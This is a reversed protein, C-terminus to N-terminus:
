SAALKAAKTRVLAQNLQPLPNFNAAKTCAEKTKAADGKGQYALCIRYLDYPNQLNAQQLEALAKDYNKEELAILGNLSHAQRAQAPNNKALAGKEFEAAESKATTLDKKGVAVRALNFHHFLKANDKIQQSLTSEETMKLLREFLGKAEDYKGMELLINGKFQLDGTMAPVDSTKEGLAYQKDMGALAKDWQGSDVDVVTQNFLATRTEADSRAKSAIQQIEAAADAPKNQYMLDASIGSHSAIFNPDISLAKRYQVISEDFKGM